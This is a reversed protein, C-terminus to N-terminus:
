FREVNSWVARIPSTPPQDKRNPKPLCAVVDAAHDRVVADLLAFRATMGFVTFTVERM